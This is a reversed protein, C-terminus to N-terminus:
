RAYTERLLKWTEMFKSVHSQQLPYSQIYLRERITLM